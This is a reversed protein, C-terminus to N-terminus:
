VSNLLLIWSTYSFEFCFDRVFDQPNFDSKEYGILTSSLFNHFESMLICLHFM